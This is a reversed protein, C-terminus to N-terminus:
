FIESLAYVHYDEFDRNNTYESIQCHMADFLTRSPFSAEPIDGPQVSNNCDPAQNALGQVTAGAM